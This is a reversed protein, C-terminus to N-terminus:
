NFKIGTREGITDVDLIYNELNEELIKQNPLYYGITDSNIGKFVYIVKFYFNPVGVRNDGIVELSDNLDGGTVVIVSDNFLALDRVHSELKKWIGRNFQPSQPSMNSMLFTEDMQEQDCSEDASAKLHGRDYGSGRYDDLTASETTISNDEKFNNKRKAKVECELDQSTITYQVWNPQEYKENYSFSYGNRYYITDGILSTPYRNIETTGNNNIEANGIPEFDIQEFSTTINLTLFLISLYIKM